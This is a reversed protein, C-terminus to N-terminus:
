GVIHVHVPFDNLVHGVLPDEMDNVQPIKCDAIVVSEGSAVVLVFHM